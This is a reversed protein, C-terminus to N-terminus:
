VRREKSARCGNHPIGTADIIATVKFYGALARAAAERGPGPGRIIIDVTVMGFNDKVKQAVNQAAIQAAYPTSKRSGKFGQEGSTSWGLANGEADTIYVLTNNFTAVIYVKGTSVKKKPKKLKKVTNTVVQKDKTAVASQKTM